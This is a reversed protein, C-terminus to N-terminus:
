EGPNYEFEGWEDVSGIDFPNGNGNTRPSSNMSGGDFTSHDDDEVGEHIPNFQAAKAYGRGGGGGGGGARPSPSPLGTGNDPGFGVDGDGDDGWGTWRSWWSAAQSVRPSWSSVYDRPTWVTQNRLKTLKRRQFAQTVAPILSSRVLFPVINTAVLLDGVLSYEDGHFLHADGVLYTLVCLLNIWHQVGVLANMSPHKYPQLETHLALSLCTVSLAALLFHNVHTFLLTGSTLLLRRVVDLIEYWWGFKTKYFKFLVKFPSADLEEYAAAREEDDDGLLDNVGAAEAANLHRRLQVLKVLAVLPLGIPIIALMLYLYITWAKYTHSSCDVSHDVLLYTARGEVGVDYTVCRMGECITRVVAALAIKVGVVFLALSTVPDDATDGGSGGSVNSQNLDSASSYSVSLDDSSGNPELIVTIGRPPRPPSPGNGQAAGKGKAKPSARRGNTGNLAARRLRHRRVYDAACLVGFVAIALTQFFLREFYGSWRESPDDSSQCGMGPIIATLDLKLFSFAGLFSAYSPPLDVGGAAEHNSSMLIVTQITVLISTAQGNLLELAAKHTAHFSVFSARLQAAKDSNSSLRYAVLIMAVLLVIVVISAIQGALSRNKALSCSECRKTATSFYYLEGEESLGCLSCLPGYAGGSCTASSHALEDATATSVFPTGDDDDDDGTITAVEGAGDEDHTANDYELAGGACNAKHPCPYVVKSTPHFRYQGKEVPMNTLTTGESSCDAGDPCETCVTTAGDSSLRRLPLLVGDSGSGDGSGSGGSDDSQMYHKPMCKDCTASGRSSTYAPGFGHEELENSCKLCTVAGRSPAFHGEACAECAAAGTSGSYRGEACTFCVASGASGAYTGTGCATCVSAAADSVKGPECADCAGAGMGSAKGAACTTCGAASANSWTGGDCKACVSSGAAASYSGADCPTCESARLGSVTGAPCTECAVALATSYTGADCSTCAIAGTAQGTFFGESCELCADEQPTPAYRGQECSECSLKNFVYTGASCDGCTSRDAASLKGEACEECSTAGIAISYKGVECLNCVFPPGADSRYRGVGCSECAGDDALFTGLGCTITPSHSPAATPGWTESTPPWTEPTPKPSTPSPSPVPTTPGPTTPARTPSSTPSSVPHDTPAATPGLSEPTATPTVTFSTPSPTPVSTPATPGPSPRVTPASTVPVTPLVSPKSTPVVTPLASPAPSPVRSPGVTSPAYSPSQTSSLPSPAPSPVRSPGVTSPAYSPSQTSPLPSPADSPQASPLPTTPLPSPMCTPLSSPLATPPFSLTPLSTPLPTPLPTPVPTPLSTPVPTPLPTPVPTCDEVSNHLAADTGNDLIEFGEPCPTCEANVGFGDYYSNAGCVACDSLYTPCSSHCVGTNTDADLPSSCNRAVMYMGAEGCGANCTVTDDPESEYMDSGLEYDETVSDTCNYFQVSSVTTTSSVTRIGGGKTASCASFSVGELNATAEKVYLGGGDANAATCSTFAAGIFSVTAGNDVHVCGGNNTEASGSMFHIGTFTVDSGAGVFFLRDTFSGNLITLTTDDGGRQHYDVGSITVGQVGSAVVIPSTIHMDAAITVHIDSFLVASSLASFTSVETYTTLRRGGRGGGRGTGDHVSAGARDTDHTSGGDRHEKDHGSRNGVGSQTGGIRAQPLFAAMLALAVLMLMPTLMATARSKTTFTAM